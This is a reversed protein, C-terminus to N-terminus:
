QNEGECKPLSASLRMQIFQKLQRVKIGYKVNSRQPLNLAESIEKWTKGMVEKYYYALVVIISEQFEEETPFTVTKGKTCSVLSSFVKPGTKIFIEMLILWNNTDTDPREQLSLQQLKFISTLLENEKEEKQLINQIKHQFLTRPNSYM